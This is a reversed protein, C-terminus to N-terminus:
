HNAEHMCYGVWGGVGNTLEVDATVKPILSTGCKTAWVCVVCHHLLSEMLESM